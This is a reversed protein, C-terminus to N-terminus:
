LVEMEIVQDARVVLDAQAMGREVQYAQFPSKCLYLTGLGDDGGVIWTENYKNNCGLSAQHTWTKEGDRLLKVMTGTKM